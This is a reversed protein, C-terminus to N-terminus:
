AALGGMRETREIEGTLLLMAHDLSPCVRSHAPKGGSHVAGFASALKRVGYLGNVEGRIAAATACALETSV